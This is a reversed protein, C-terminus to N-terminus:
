KDLINDLHGMLSVVIAGLMFGVPAVVFVAILALSVMTNGRNLQNLLAWQLGISVIFSSIM